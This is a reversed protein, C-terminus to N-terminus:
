SVFFQAMKKVLKKNITRLKPMRNGNPNIKLSGMGEQNKKKNGQLGKGM